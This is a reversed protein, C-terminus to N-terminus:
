LQRWGADARRQVPLGGGSEPGRLVHRGAGGASPRGMVPGARTVNM